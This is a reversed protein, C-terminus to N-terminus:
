LEYSYIIMMEGIRLQLELSLWSLLQLYSNLSISLCSTLYRFYKFMFCFFLFSSSLSSFTLFDVEQKGNWGKMLSWQSMSNYFSHECEVSRIGFSSSFIGFSCFNNSSSSFTKSSILSLQNLSLWSLLQLSSNLSISLCSTLYRFSKFCM